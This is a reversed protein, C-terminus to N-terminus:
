LCLQPFKLYSMNSVAGNNVEGLLLQSYQYNLWWLSTSGGDTINKVQEAIEVPNDSNLCLRLFRQGMSGLPGNPSMITLLRQTDLKQLFDLREEM